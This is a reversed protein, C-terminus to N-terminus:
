GNNQDQEHRTKLIRRQNKAVIRLIQLEHLAEFLREPMLVGVRVNEKRRLM